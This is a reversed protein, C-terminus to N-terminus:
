ALKQQWLQARALVASEDLMALRREQVVREGAVWV